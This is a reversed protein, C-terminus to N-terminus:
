SKTRFGGMLYVIACILLVLGLGGGGIAPGGFYFGGGGFLLLLVIVLLLLNMAARYRRTAEAVMPREVVQIRRSATQEWLLPYSRQYPLVGHCRNHNRRM